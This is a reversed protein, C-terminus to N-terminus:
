NISYSSQVFGNYPLFDIYIVNSDREVDISATVTLPQQLCLDLTALENCVYANGQPSYVLATSNDLITGFNIHDDTLVNTSFLVWDNEEYVYLFYTNTNSNFRVQHYRHEMFAASQIGRIDQVMSHSSITLFQRKFISYISPASVLIIISIISIAILFEIITFANFRYPATM